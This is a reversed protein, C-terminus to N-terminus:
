RAPRRELREMLFGCGLIGPVTLALRILAFRPGLFASELLLMPVKIAAWAGLFIVLNATRAGKERLSLGLPFAAYIPGAAATGLLMAFAVGRLGSGPGLSREVVARPVWADFLALLVLVAPLIALIQLFGQLGGRASALALQPFRWALALHVAAIVVLIGVVPRWARSM